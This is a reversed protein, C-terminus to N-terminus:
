YLLVLCMVETDEQDEMALAQDEMAQHDEEAADEVGLMGLAVRLTLLGGRGGALPAMVGQGRDEVTDEVEEEVTDEEMEEMVVVEVTDEEM